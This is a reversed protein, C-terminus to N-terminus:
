PYRLYREQDSTMRATIKAELQGFKKDIRKSVVDALEENKRSMAKKSKNGNQPSFILGLAVGAALGTLVALLAKGTKM